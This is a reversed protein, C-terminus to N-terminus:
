HTVPIEVSVRPVVVTCTLKPRIMSVVKSQAVRKQPVGPDLAM